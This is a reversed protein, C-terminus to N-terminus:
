VQSGCPSDGGGELCVTKKERERERKGVERMRDEEHNGCRRAGLM